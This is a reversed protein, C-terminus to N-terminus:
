RKLSSRATVAVPVDQVNREGHKLATVIVEEEAADVASQAWAAPTMAGGIGLAAGLVVGFRAGFRDRHKAM